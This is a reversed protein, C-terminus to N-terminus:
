QSVATCHLASNRERKGRLRQGGATARSCQLPTNQHDTGRRLDCFMVVVAVVFELRRGASSPILCWIRSASVVLVSTMCQGSSKWETLHNCAHKIQPLLFVFHAGWKRCTFMHNQHRHSPKLSTRLCKRCCKHWQPYVTRWRNPQNLWECLHLAVNAALLLVRSGECNISCGFVMLESILRRRVGWWVYLEYLAWIWKYKLPRCPLRHHNMASHFVREALSKNPILKVPCVRCGSWSIWSKVPTWGWESPDMKLLNISAHVRVKSSRMEYKVRRQNKWLETMLREGM